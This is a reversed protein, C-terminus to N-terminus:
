RRWWRSWWGRPWPGLAQMADALWGDGALSLPVVSAAGAPGAPGPGEDHSAPNGEDVGDRDPSGPPPGRRNIVHRLVATGTGSDPSRPRRQDTAGALGTARLFAAVAAAGIARAPGQEFVAGRYVLGSIADAGSGVAVLPGGSSGFWIWEDGVVVVDLVRQPHHDVLEPDALLPDTATVGGSVVLEEGSSARESIRGSRAVVQL